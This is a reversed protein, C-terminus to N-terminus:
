SWQLPTGRGLEAEYGGCHPKWLECGVLACLLTLCKMHWVLGVLLKESSCRMKLFNSISISLSSGRLGKWVKEGLPNERSNLWGLRSGM